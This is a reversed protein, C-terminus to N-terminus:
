SVPSEIRHFDHRVRAHLRESLATVLDLTFAPDFSCLATVSCVGAM